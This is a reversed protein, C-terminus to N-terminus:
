VPQFEVRTGFGAILPRGRRIAAQVDPLELSAMHAEANTWLETIWISDEDAVDAGVIYAINGPMAGINETLVAILEARKGPQAKMQGILGYRAKESDSQGFAPGAGGLAMMAFGALGGQVTDRRTVM